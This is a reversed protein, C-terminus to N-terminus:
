DFSASTAKGEADYKHVFNVPNNNHIAEVLTERKHMAVSGHTGFEAEKPASVAAGEANVAVSSYAFHYDVVFQDYKTTDLDAKAALNWRFGLTAPLSASKVEKKWEATTVVENKKAGNEDYYDFSIDCQEITQPDFKANFVISAAVAKTDQEPTPTPTPTPENKDKCSTMVLAAMCAVIAMSFIKKM